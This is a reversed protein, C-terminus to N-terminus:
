EKLKGIQTNIATATKQKLVHAMQEVSITHILLGMVAILEDAPMMVGGGPIGITWSRKGNKMIEVCNFQKGTPGDSAVPNGAGDVLAM